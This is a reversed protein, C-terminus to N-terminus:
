ISERLGCLVCIRNSQTRHVKIVHMVAIADRTWVGRRFGYQDEGRYMKAKNDIREAIIRILIKSAHSILSLTRYDSCEEAGAKKEIPIIISEVFDKPWQGEKYIKCWIDYLEKTAKEGIQKLFEAPIEDIGEAKKNKLKKLAEEFESKIIQPGEQEEICPGLLLLSVIDINGGVCLGTATTGGTKTYTYL